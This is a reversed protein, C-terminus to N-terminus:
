DSSGLRRRLTASLEPDNQSLMNTVNIVMERAAGSEFDEDIKIVTMLSEVAEAYHKEAILCIALDFHTKCNDPHESIKQQLAAIGITKEALELFSLQGIILKGMDSNKATDPLQNFLAVAQDFEKLDLFIQTMDMAVKVNAPDQQMALTLKNVAELTNGAIHDQRAQLRLEDSPSFVGFEKLIERLAEQDHLGEVSHVVKGDKFVKLTPVNEINFQSKLEMQEEIDVSAFIFEGAFEQALASLEDSMQICPASWVALFEVLVPAKHSNLVVATDFNAQSM